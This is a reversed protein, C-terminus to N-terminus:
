ILLFPSQRRVYHQINYQFCQNNDNIQMYTDMKSSALSSVGIYFLHM